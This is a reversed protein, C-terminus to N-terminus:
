LTRLIHSLEYESPWTGQFMPLPMVVSSGDRRYRTFSPTHDDKADLVVLSPVKKFLDFVVDIKLGLPHFPEIAFYALKKLTLHAENSAFLQPLEEAPAGIYSPRYSLCRLDPMHSIAKMLHVAGFGVPARFHTIKSFVQSVTPGRLFSPFESILNLHTIPRTLILAWTVRINAALKTLHPLSDASLADVHFTFPVELHRISSHLELFEEFCSTEEVPISDWICTRLKDTRFAKLISISPIDRNFYSLRFYELNVLLPLIEAIISVDYIMPKTHDTFFTFRRVFPALRANGKSIQHHFAEVRSVLQSSNNLTETFVAEHYFRPEAINCLIRCSVLVNLLSFKDKADIFDVVVYIFLGLSQVDFTAM